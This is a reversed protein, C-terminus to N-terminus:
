AFAQVSRSRIARAPPRRHGVPRRLVREEVPEGAHGLGEAVPAPGLDDVQESLAFPRDVLDGAFERLADRVGGLVQLMQQAGTQHVGAAVAVADEVREGAGAHRLQPRRNAVDRRLVDGLEVLEGGRVEAVARLQGGDAAVLEGLPEGVPVDHHEVDPGFPLEPAPCM